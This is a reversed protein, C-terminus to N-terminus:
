LLTIPSGLEFVIPSNEDQEKAALTEADVTVVVRNRIDDIGATHFTESIDTADACYKNMVEYLYNYSYECSRFQTNPFADKLYKYDSYDDGVIVFIYYEAGNEDYEVYVGGYNDPYACYNDSDPTLDNLFLEYPNHPYETKSHYMRYPGEEYQAPPQQANAASCGTCMILAICLLIYLVKKIQTDEKLQCYNTIPLKTTPFLIKDVIIDGKNVFTLNIKTDTRQEAM